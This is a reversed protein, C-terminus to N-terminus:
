GFYHFFTLILYYYKKYRKWGQVYYELNRQKKEPIDVKISSDQEKEKKEEDSSNLESSDSDEKEIKQIDEVLNQELNNNKIIKDELIEKTQQPFTENSENTSEESKLRSLITKLIDEKLQIKFQEVQGFSNSNSSTSHDFNESEYVLLSLMLKQPKKAPQPQSNSTTQSDIRM